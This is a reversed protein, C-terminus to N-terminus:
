PACRFDEEWAHATVGNFPGRRTNMLPLAGEPDL